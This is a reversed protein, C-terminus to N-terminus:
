GVVPWSPGSPSYLYLQIREKIEASSPTPPRRWAGAAKGGPFVRYGNYLLSPPGWPREPLTRFIEGGSPNSGRVTWRTAIGVSSDRGGPVSLYESFIADFHWGTWLLDWVCWYPIFSPDGYHCAPLYGDSDRWSESLTEHIMEPINMIRVGLQLQEIGMAVVFLCM